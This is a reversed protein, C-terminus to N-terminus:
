RIAEVYLKLEAECMRMKESCVKGDPEMWRIYYWNGGGDQDQYLERGAVYGIWGHHHRTHTAHVVLQAIEYLFKTM